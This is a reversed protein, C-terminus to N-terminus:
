STSLGKVVTSRFPARCGFNLFDAWYMHYIDKYEDTGPMLHMKGGGGNKRWDGPVGIRILTSTDMYLIFGDPIYYSQIVPIQSLGAGTLTPLKLTGGPLVIDRNELQMGGSFLKAFRRFQKYHMVAVINKEKAGQALSLSPGIQLNTLSLTAGSANYLQCRMKTYTSRSLGQFTQVNQKTASDRADWAVTYGTQRDFMSELGQVYDTGITAGTTTGKYYACGYATVTQSPSTSFSISKNEHDIATVYHATNTIAGSAKRRSFWVVQDGEVARIISDTTYTVTSTAYNTNSVRFLHGDGRGFAQCELRAKHTEMGGRLIGELSTKLAARGGEMAVLDESTVGFTLVNKIVPLNGEAAVTSAPAPFEGEEAVVGYGGANYMRIPLYAKLGRGFVKELPVKQFAALIPRDDPAVAADYIPEIMYDLLKDLTSLTDGTVLAM